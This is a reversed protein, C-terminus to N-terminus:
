DARRHAVLDRVYAVYEAAAAEAARRTDPGPSPEYLRVIAASWPRLLGRDSDPVGLLSAIVAVPLPEAYLPMLDVVSGDSGADRVDGALDTAVADIGPRLREVQRRGFAAAVLRRLRTHTPPENELMSHVHLLTYAPLEDVPWRPSWLRGLGRHRLVADAEAHGFTVYTGLPESWQVPADRRRAAFAPYPDAVIEPQLPDFDVVGFPLGIDWAGSTTAWRPEDWTRASCVSPAYRRAISSPASASSHSTRSVRSPCRTHTCSRRTSRVESPVPTTLSKSRSSRRPNSKPDHCRGSPPAYMSSRSLVSSGTSVRSRSSSTTAWTPRSTRTSISVLCGVRYAPSTSCCSTRSSSFNSSAAGASRAVERTVTILKEGTANRRTRSSAGARGVTDSHHRRTGASRRSPEIDAKASM